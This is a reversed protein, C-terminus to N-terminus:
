RERFFKPVADPALHIKANIGKMSGLEEDFLHDYKDLLAQLKSQHQIQYVNQWNFQLKELWNRGILNPQNGSVVVLPLSMSKDENQSIKVNTVGKPTILEGTFTRLKIGTDSM